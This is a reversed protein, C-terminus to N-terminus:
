AAKTNATTGNSSTAMSKLWLDSAPWSAHGGPVRCPVPSYRRSHRDALASGWGGHMAREASLLRYIPAARTNAPLRGPQKATDQWILLRSLNTRAAAGSSHRYSELGFSAAGVLAARATIVHVPIRGMLDKFRGKRVFAEMFHPEKLAGLVHLAVGGALYVRGTALVKLALNGSALISVLMQISARCLESRNKPDGAAEV